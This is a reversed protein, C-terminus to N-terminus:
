GSKLSKKAQEYVPSASSVRNSFDIPALAEPAYDTPKFRKNKLVMEAYMM